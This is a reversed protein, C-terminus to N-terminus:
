RSSIDSSVRMFISSPGIGSGGEKTSFFPIFIKELNDKPIGPGNDKVELAIKGRKDLRAELYVEANKCDSVAQQANLLLNILVQEILEPDATLELTRPEVNVRFQIGKEKFDAQMLKEVRSFLEKIPFIEFNPKKVLTLNRYSDVFHILRHSRKKITQAADKIDTLSESVM